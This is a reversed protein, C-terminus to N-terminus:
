DAPSFKQALNTLAHFQSRLNFNNKLISNSFHVIIYCYAISRLSVQNRALVMVSTDCLPILLLPYIMVGFLSSLFATCWGFPMMDVQSLKSQIIIM